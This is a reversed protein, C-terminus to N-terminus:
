YVALKALMKYALSYIWLCSQKFFGTRKVLHLFTIVILVGTRGEVM